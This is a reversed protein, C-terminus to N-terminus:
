EVLSDVLEKFYGRKQVLNKPEDFDVVEGQNMVLIRDCDMVTQLRHAVILVTRNAFEEKLCRQVVEETKLDLSATAEDMLILKSENLLCRAFCIVQKEGQSLNAGQNDIKM